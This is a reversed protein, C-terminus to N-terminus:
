GAAHRAALLYRDFGLHVRRLTAVHAAASTMTGARCAAYLRVDAAVQYALGDLILISAILWLLGGRVTPSVASVLLIHLDVDPSTVV